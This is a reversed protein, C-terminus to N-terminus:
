LSLEESFGSIHLDMSQITNPQGTVIEILVGESGQGTIYQALDLRKYFGDKKIVVDGDLAQDTLRNCIDGNGPVFGTAAYTWDASAHKKLFLDFTADNAAGVWHAEFETVTFDRNEFDEYKAYGYNFTLSYTTPSGSTVYLEFTIEGSFKGVTEAYTDATLTTIDTTIIDTQAATQPGEESDLTGSVRLGVTGTDVTGAAEPVIAPHAAYGRGASGYAQTLSANTLTVSTASFDYFGAKWFSGVGSGQSTFGYSKGISNRPLARPSLALVIGDTLGEKLVTGIIVRNNPYLPQTQTIGGATGLWLIGNPPTGDTDIDRIEGIYTALGVEGDEVDATAMGIVSSSTATSSADALIGKVVLNTADVGSANIVKGNDIKVGTDNFFRVHIEQGINVRVDLFGTDSLITMTVPDYSLQGPTHAQGGTTELLLRKRTSLKSM